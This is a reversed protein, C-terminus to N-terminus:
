CVVVSLIVSSVGLIVRYVYKRDEEAARRRM